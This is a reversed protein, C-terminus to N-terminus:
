SSRMHDKDCRYYWYIVSRSIDEVEFELHVGKTVSAFGITSNAENTEGETVSSFDM